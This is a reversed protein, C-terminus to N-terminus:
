NKANVGSNVMVGVNITIVFFAILDVNVSVRKKGSQKYQENTRSLIM